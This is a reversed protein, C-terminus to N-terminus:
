INNREHPIFRQIENIVGLDILVSETNEIEKLITNMRFYDRENTYSEILYGLYICLSEILKEKM